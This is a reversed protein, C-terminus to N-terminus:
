VGAFMDIQLIGEHLNKSLLSDDTSCDIAYHGIQHECLVQHKLLDVILVPRPESMSILKTPQQMFLIDNNVFSNPNLRNDPISIPKEPKYSFLLAGTLPDYIACHMEISSLVVLSGVSTFFIQGVDDFKITRLLEGTDFDIISLDRVEGPAAILRQNYTIWSGILPTEPIDSIIKSSIEVKRPRVFNDNVEVFFIFKKSICFYGVHQDINFNMSFIEAGTKWDYVHFRGRSRFIIKDDRFVIQDTPDVNPFSIQYTKPPHGSENLKKIIIEFDDGSKHLISVMTMAKNDFFFALTHAIAYVPQMTDYRWVCTLFSASNTYFYDNNIATVGLHSHFNRNEVLPLFFAEKPMTRRTTVKRDSTIDYKILELVATRHGASYNPTCFTGFIICKNHYLYGTCSHLNIIDSSINKRVFLSNTIAYALKFHVPNFSLHEMGRMHSRMALNLRSLAAYSSPTLYKKVIRSFPDRMEAILTAIRTSAVTTTPIPPTAPTPPSLDLLLDSLTKESTVSNQMALPATPLQKKIQHQLFQNIEALKNQLKKFFYTFFDRIALAIRKFCNNKISNKCDNLLKDILHTVIRKCSENESDTLFARNHQYLVKVNDILAPIGFQRKSEIGLENKLTICVFRSGWTSVGASATSLATEFEHFNNIGSILTM